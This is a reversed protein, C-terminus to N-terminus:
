LGHLNGGGSHIVPIDTLTTFLLWVTICIGLALFSGLISQAPGIFIQVKFNYM